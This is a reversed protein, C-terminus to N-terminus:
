LDQERRLYFPYVMNYISNDHILKYAVDLMLVNEDNRDPHARVNIERIRPEHKRLAQEAYYAVRSATNPNNPHFHRCM